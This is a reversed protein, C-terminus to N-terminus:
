FNQVFTFSILLSIRVLSDIALSLQIRIKFDRNLNQLTCIVQFHLHYSIVPWVDITNATTRAKRPAKRFYRTWPKIARLAWSYGTTCVLKAVSGLWRTYEGSIVVHSLGPNPDEQCLNPIVTCSDCYKFYEMLNLIYHSNENKLFRNYIHEAFTYISCVNANASRFGSEAPVALPQANGEERLKIGLCANCCHRLPTGSISRIWHDKSLTATWSRRGPSITAGTWM